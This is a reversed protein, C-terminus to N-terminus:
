TPMAETIPMWVFATSTKSFGLVTIWEGNSIPMGGTVVGYTFKHAKGAIGTQM